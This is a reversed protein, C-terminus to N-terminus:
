GLVAKIVFFHMHFYCNFYIPSNMIISLTLLCWMLATYKKKIRYRILKYWNRIQSEMSWTEDFWVCDYDYCLWLMLPYRTFLVYAQVTQWIKLEGLFFHRCFVVVRSKDQLDTHKPKLNPQNVLGTILFLSKMLVLLAHWISYSLDSQEHCISSSNNKNTNRKCINREGKNQASKWVYFTIVIIIASKVPLDVHSFIELIGCFSICFDKRWAFIEYGIFDGFCKHLM